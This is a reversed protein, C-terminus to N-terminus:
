FFKMKRRGFVYALVQGTNRDIGHWLWRPNKKSSVFSWMDDLESAEIRAGPEKEGEGEEARHIEVEIHEAPVTELLKQNVAQLYPQKKKLERIM